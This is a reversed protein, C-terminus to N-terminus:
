DYVAEFINDRVKIIYKLLPIKLNIEQKTMVPFKYNENVYGLKGKEKERNKVFELHKDIRKKNFDNASNLIDDIRQNILDEFNNDIEMGI